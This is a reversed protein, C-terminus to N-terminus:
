CSVTDLQIFINSKHFLATDIFTRTVTNSQRNKLNYTHSLMYSSVSYKIHFPVSPGGHPIKVVLHYAITKFCMSTFVGVDHSRAIVARGTALEQWMVDAVTHYDM